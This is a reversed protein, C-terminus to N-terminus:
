VPQAVVAFLQGCCRSPWGGDTWRDIWVPPGAVYSRCPPRAVHPTREAPVGVGSNDIGPLDLVTLGDTPPARARLARPPEGGHFLGDQRHHFAVADGLREAPVLHDGPNPTRALPARHALVRQRQEGLLHLVDHPCAALRLHGALLYPQGDESRQTVQVLD